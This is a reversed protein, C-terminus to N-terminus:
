IAYSPSPARRGGLGLSKYILWLVFSLEGPAVAINTVKLVVQMQDPWLVWVLTNMVWGFCGLILFAGIIRPVFGSKWVLLGFPLLWLGWFLENIRTLAGGVRVFGLAMADRQAITISSQFEPRHLFVLPAIDFAFNVFAIGASVCVLAVLMRAQAADVDKFVNYLVLGLFIFATMGELGVAVCLRYVWEDAAINRMTAAADGAVIFHKPMYLLYVPGPLGMLLYALLTTRAKTPTM